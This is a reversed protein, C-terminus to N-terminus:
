FCVFRQIGNRKCVKTEEDFGLAALANQRQRLPEVLISKDNSESSQLLKKHSLFCTMFYSSIQKGIRIGKREAASLKLQKMAKELGGELDGMEEKEGGQYFVRVGLPGLRRNASLNPTCV